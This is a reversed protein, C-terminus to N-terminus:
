KALNAEMEAIVVELSYHSVRIFGNNPRDYDIIMLMVGVMVLALTSTRWRSIYGSLGANFGTVAITSASIFILTWIVATPLKDIVAALRVTHIDLVHNMAAVMSVELAGPKSQSLAKELAPWLKSQALLTKEIIDEREATNLIQDPAGARTKAYAFIAEKLETSGPEAILEARMFASGLANAEDVVAQKRADFRSVGSAYTFALILGLLAFLTSLAVSGGGTDANLWKKRSKVGIRYGAELAVLLIVLLILGAFILPTQYFISFDM